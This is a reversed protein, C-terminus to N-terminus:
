AKVAAAKILKVNEADAREKEAKKQAESMDETIVAKDPELGTKFTKDWEEFVKNKVDQPCTTAEGGVKKIAAWIDKQLKIFTHTWVREVAFDEDYTARVIAPIYANIVDDLHDTSYHDKNEDLVKKCLARYTTETWGM